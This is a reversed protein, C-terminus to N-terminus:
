GIMRRLATLPVPSGPTKEAAEKAEISEEVVPKMMRGAPLIPAAGATTGETGSPTKEQARLIQCEALFGQTLLSRLWEQRAARPTRLLRGVILGDIGVAPELRLSIRLGKSAEGKRM